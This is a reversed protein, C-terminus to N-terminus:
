QENTLEEIEKSYVTYFSNKYVEVYNNEIIFQEYFEYYPIANYEHSSEKLWKMDIYPWLADRHSHVSNVILDPSYNFFKKKIDDNSNLTDWSYKLSYQSNTLYYYMPSSKAFFVKKETLDPISNIYTLLSDVVQVRRTNSKIGYLQYSSFNTQVVNFKFDRYPRYDKVGLFILFLFFSAYIIQEFKFNKPQKNETILLSIYAIVIIGSGSRFATIIGLDSGFFSIVFACGITCLIILERKDAKKYLIAWLVVLSAYFSLIGMTLNVREGEYDFIRYYFLWCFLILTITQILKQKGYKKLIFGTLAIIPLSIATNKIISTFMSLYHKFLTFMSHDRLAVTGGTSEKKELFERVLIAFGNVYGGIGGTVLLFSLILFFGAVVGLVYKYIYKKNIEKKHAVKDMFIVLIPLVIAIIYTIKCFSSLTAFIGSYIFFKDTSREKFLGMLSFYLSILMFLYPLNDYNITHYYQFYYIAITALITFIFVKARNFFLGLMKYTFFAIATQLIVFGLRAWLLIPKVFIMLWAGGIINTGATADFNESWLGHYMGWQKSLHYGTDTTEFGYPIFFLYLFFVILLLIKTLHDEYNSKNVCYILWLLCTSVLLWYVFSFYISFMESNSFESYLPNLPFKLFLWVFVIGTFLLKLYNLKNTKM